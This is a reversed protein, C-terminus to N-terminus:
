PDRHSSAAQERPAFLRAFPDGLQRGKEIAIVASTDHDPETLARWRRSPSTSIVGIVPM